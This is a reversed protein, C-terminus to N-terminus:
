DQDTSGQLRKRYESEDLIEAGFGRAKDIKRTVAKDGYVLIEVKSTPSGLVILGQERAERAMDSRSKSVFKGTFFIKKGKLSM